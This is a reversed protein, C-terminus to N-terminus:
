FFTSISKKLPKRAQERRQLRLLLKKIQLKRERRLPQSPLKAMILLPLRQSAVVSRPNPNKLMLRKKMKQKRRPRRRPSKKIEKMKRRPQQQKRQQLKVRQNRM